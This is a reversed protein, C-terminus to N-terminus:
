FPLRLSVRGATSCSGWKRKMPRIHVKKPDVGIRESWTSIENRLVEKEIPQDLRPLETASTVSM